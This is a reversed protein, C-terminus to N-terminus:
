LLQEYLIFTDYNQNNTNGKQLLIKMNCFTDYNVQRTLGAYNFMIVTHSFLMM